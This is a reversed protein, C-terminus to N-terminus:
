NWKGVEKWARQLWAQAVTAEDPAPGSGLYATLHDIAPGPQGAQILCIGLERRLQSQQPQLQRRRQLVRVCRPYDHQQNYIGQLNSLMRVLILLLPTAELQEPTVTFPTGTVQQVLIACESHSLFRGGHFPDILIEEGEEVVKAIFHGPLGIGRVDLGTRAGVGIAVTALTIPIGMRRELVENLYSNRPDYYDKTNGRFGMEFFLYRCFRGVRAALDGGRLYRGVEHAMGALQQLYAEVDLQPYEDRALCLALEALDLPAEPERALLELAADLDM